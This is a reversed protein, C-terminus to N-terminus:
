SVHPRNFKRNQICYREFYVLCFGNIPPIAFVQKMVQSCPRYIYISTKVRDNVNKIMIQQTEKSHCQKNEVVAETCMAVPLSISLPLSVFYIMDKHMHWLLM